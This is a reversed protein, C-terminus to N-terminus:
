ELAAAVLAAQEKEHRKAFGTAPSAAPIRGVYRPRRAKGGLDALVAEIRRDVFTWYGMNEPEEQCWVVEVQPYKALEFALATAPFPYLEEMRVLAVDDIKKETRAALLDYYVKGTCLVVRRIKEAKALTQTEGIVPQFATGPGFDKLPSVAMKHRLLSKPTMLMLPKRFDRCVQRRLIHFYSAPTTCNAVHMNFEACLQLFREPRASSHEPGQGEYGHPLLMVLGSMRLWKTESASIYQDIIVQAGNVFDGFQGEWLVLAHPEALSFGYDFGLVAAESLPSDLVELHAKQNKAIRNVPRDEAETTQDRLVAHRHSFTGRGCDQGSLRVPIDELLLSGFALAEGTAWDLGEGSTFMEERLKLQREIKPNLDFGDPVGSIAKGIKKLVDMSVGTKVPMDPLVEVHKLGKWRGELWDANKPRYDQAAQFEAELMAHYDAVIKQDEEPTVVGETVLTRAYLDRTTARDRILAYMKPQTFAPEDTENHGHRRYGIVDVVVDRYFTQRFEAALRSVIVVAEPNDGNVHFVPVNIMRSIDTSWAGSRFCWPNTTFGIQNNIIFHLTGGIRYGKLDAMMLTEAVMGQGAFAADGHILLAAVEARASDSVHSDWGTRQQQKARVKGAVVPNVSELHSPNFALSVHVDHGAIKRDASAGMHYKVDGAGPIGEPVNPTGLFESFLARFPKKVINTLVNLRGRHAMGIAVERLGMRAATEIAEEIGAIASECGEVGFRKAGPFKTQLFKELGEAMSLNQLTICKDEQSLTFRGRLREIRDQVWARQDADPIHMYEVGVPGSYTRRLLDLMERLTTSELGFINNVAIAHDMDRDTFGWTKPDLEPHRYVPQLGLPDLEAQLHGLSRWAQVLQMMRISDLAARRLQDASIGPRSAGAPTAAVEPASGIIRGTRPSWTPGLTDKLVLAQSDDLGDFFAAWGPDVSGHDKLYLAYLEAIYGANPGSLVSTKERVAAMTTKAGPM